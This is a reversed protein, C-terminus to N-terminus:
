PGKSKQATGFRSLKFRDLPKGTDLAAQAAMEGIAPGMKFGHGSGGGVVLVRPDGPHFDIILDRDPTNEYQCIRAELLPAGAMAPFRFALHERARAIRGADPTRDVTTPDIVEGLDNCSIKFGRQENGPIGYWSGRSNDLWVPLSAEDFKGGAPRGFYYVEQRSPRMWPGIWEPFITRLWPGCAFVYRDAELTTGDELRVGDLRDGASFQPTAATIRLTGGSKEFQAVVEQVSRRALLWGGREEFYSIKVDDWNLQPFRKRGDALDLREISFKWRQTHPLSERVFADDENFLWLVGVRRLIPVGASSLAEWYPFSRMTMDVYHPQNGYGGRIVRSEDGSSSRSNAPGWADLLTVKAGQRALHWATWSGFVGAGIVIVRPATM